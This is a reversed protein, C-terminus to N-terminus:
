WEINGGDCDACASGDGLKGTGMCHYCTGDNEAATLIADDEALTAVDDVSLRTGTRKGAARVIREYVTRRRM